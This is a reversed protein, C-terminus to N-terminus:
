RGSPTAAQERSLLSFTEALEKRWRKRKKEYVLFQKASLLQRVEHDTEDLLKAVAQNSASLKNKHEAERLLKEIKKHETELAQMLRKTQEPSVTTQKKLRSMMSSLSNKLRREPDAAPQPKPPSRRTPSKPPEQRPETDARPQRPQPQAAPEAIPEHGLSAFGAELLKLRGPVSVPGAARLSSDLRDLRLEHSDLTLTLQDLDANSQHLDLVLYLLIALLLSLALILGTRRPQPRPPRAPM